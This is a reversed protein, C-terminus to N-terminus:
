RPEPIGELLEDLTYPCKEPIESHRARPLNTELIATKVAILWARELKEELYRRLSPSDELKFVIEIQANAISTRWSAGSREPQIREKVLHMLMRAVQSLVASRESKGLDEIEEVLHEMDVEGTRGSRLLEATHATWEVFDTDYLTKTRTGM